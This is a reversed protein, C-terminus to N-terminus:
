YDTRYAWFDCYNLDHINHSICKEDKDHYLHCLNTKHDKLGNKVIRKYSLYNSLLQCVLINLNHLKLSCIKKIKLSHKITM